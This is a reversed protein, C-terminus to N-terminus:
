KDGLPIQMQSRLSRSGRGDAWSSGAKLGGEQVRMASPPGLGEFNGMQSRGGGVQGLCAEPGALGTIDVAQGKLCNNWAGGKPWRGSQGGGPGSLFSM